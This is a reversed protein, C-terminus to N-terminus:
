LVCRIGFAFNRVGADVRVRKSLRLSDPYVNWSGGRVIGSEEVWEAANGSMDYLGFDNPPFSRVPSTYDFGDNGNANADKPGITSGSIFIRSAKGGRAAYEWHADTPLRGGAWRCFDGAESWTVNVVPDDALRWGANFEPAPPMPPGGNGTSRSYTAVTIETRSMWFGAEIRTERAPKEDDECNTDGAACGFLFTGPPIWVYEIGTREDKWVQGQTTGTPPGGATLATMVTLAPKRSPILAYATLGVILALGVTAIGAWIPGKSPVPAVMARKLNEVFEACSGYRAEPKKALARAFVADVARPLAPNRKTAAVPPELSIKAIWPIQELEADFITYGTLLKYATVALAYQDTRGDIPGGELREPSLYELTGIVMGQTLNSNSASVKAIGFDLIKANGNLDVMINDPKIDRHIIGRQHAYDLAGASQKMIRLTTEPQAPVGKIFDSSLQRGEVYEMVVHAKGEFPFFDYVAAIHEHKSLDAAVRAETILRELGESASIGVADSPPLTTKIAVQRHLWSDWALWVQGMGGKGLQRILEYRSQSSTESM